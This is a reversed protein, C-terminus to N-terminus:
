PRIVGVIAFAAALTVIAAILVWVAAGTPLDGGDRLAITTRRWRWGGAVATLAGVVILAIGLVERTGTEAFREVVNLVAVGAAMLGLSTRIWALVTREAALTFRADVAGQPRANSEDARDPPTM